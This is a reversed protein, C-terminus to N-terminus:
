FAIMQHQCLPMYTALHGIFRQLVQGTKLDWQITTTDYSGSFATKGDSAFVVRRVRDKHGSLQQLQTGDGCGM